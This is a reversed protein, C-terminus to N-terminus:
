TSGVRITPPPPELRPRGTVAVKAMEAAREPSVGQAQFLAAFDEELRGVVSAVNREAAEAEVIRRPDVRNAAAWDLVDAHREAEIYAQIGNGSEHLLAFRM